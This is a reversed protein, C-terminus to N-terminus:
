GLRSLAFVYAHGSRRRYDDYAPWFAVFRPWVQDREADSLLRAREESRESGIQLSALPQAELNRAWSGWVTTALYVRDSDRVFFVPFTRPRGSRRGTTTLLATPLRAPWSSLLRGGTLPYLFRDIRTTMPMFGYQFLRTRGGRRLVASWADSVAGGLARFLASGPAHVRSRITHTRM